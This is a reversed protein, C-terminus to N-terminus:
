SGVVCQRVMRRHNEAAAKIYSAINRNFVEKGCIKDIDDRLAELDSPLFTTMDRYTDGSNCFLDFGLDSRGQVIVLQSM